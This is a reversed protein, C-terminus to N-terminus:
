LFNQLTIYITIYITIYLTIYIHIYVYVYNISYVLMIHLTHTNSLDKVGTQMTGWCYQSLVSVCPTSDRAVTLVDSM